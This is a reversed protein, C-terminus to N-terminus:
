SHMTPEKNEENVPIGADELHENIESLSMERLESVTVGFLQANDEETPIEKEPVDVEEKGFPWPPM